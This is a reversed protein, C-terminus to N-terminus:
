YNRLGPIIEHNLEEAIALEDAFKERIKVPMRAVVNELERGTGMKQLCGTAERADVCARLHLAWEKPDQSKIKSLSSKWAYALSQPKGYAEDLRRM